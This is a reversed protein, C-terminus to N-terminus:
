TLAARVEPLVEAALVIQPSSVAFDPRHHEGVGFVDLGSQDAIRAWELLQELRARPDTLAGDATRNLEGFTFIGIEFPQVAIM